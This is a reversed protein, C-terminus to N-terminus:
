CGIPPYRRLFEDRQIAFSENRDAVQAALAPDAGAALTIPTAYLRALDRAAVRTAADEACRAQVENEVRVIGVAALVGLVGFAVVVRYRRWLM